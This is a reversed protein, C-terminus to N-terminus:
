TYIKHSIFLCTRKRCLRIQEWFILLNIYLFAFIKGGKAQDCKQGMVLWNEKKKKIDLTETKLFDSSHCRYKEFPFSVFQSDKSIM